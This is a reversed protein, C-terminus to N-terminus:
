CSSAEFRLEGKFGALITAVDASTLETVALRLSGKREMLANAQEVTLTKARSPDENNAQGPVADIGVCLAAALVLSRVFSTTM